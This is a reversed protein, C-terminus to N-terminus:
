TTDLGALLTAIELDGAVTVKHAALSGPVAVVAGDLRGAAVAQEVLALEDTTSREGADELVRVLVDRRFVQPTQVLHLHTRDVTGVIRDGDVRKVTDAVRLTPAAALAGGRVARSAADLVTRPTFARAADHLAVVDAAAGLATMGARVSDSRTAGGGVLTVPGAADLAAAFAARHGPAYVVVVEDAADGLRDFAHRVLSKGAM